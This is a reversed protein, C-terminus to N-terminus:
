RWEEIQAIQSVANARLSIWGTFLVNQAYYLQTQGLLISNSSGPLLIEWNSATPNRLGIQLIKVNSVFYPYFTNALPMSLHHVFARKTMINVGSSFSLPLHTFYIYCLENIECSTFNLFVEKATTPIPISINNFSECVGISSIISSSNDRQITVVRSSYNVINIFSFNENNDISLAHALHNTILITRNQERIKDAHIIEPTKEIKPTGMAWQKM